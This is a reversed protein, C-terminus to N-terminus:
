PAQPGCEIRLVAGPPEVAALSFLEDAAAAEPGPEPRAYSAVQPEAARPPLAREAGHFRSAKGAGRAACSDRLRSGADFFAAPLAVLGSAVDTEPSSLVVTGDIGLRSSAEVVSGPSRILNEAFISLNGGSGLNAEATVVGDDLVALPTNIRIDGATTDSGGFVRTTIRSEQIQAHTGVDLDISGGQAFFLGEASIQSDDMSLEDAVLRITGANGPKYSTVSIEAGEGLSIRQSLLVVDGSDARRLSGLADRDGVTSYIGSANGVADSGSARFREIAKVTVSGANGAGFASSGIQAGELLSISSAEVTVRGADGVSEPHDGRASLTSTTILGNSVDVESAVVSVTGSDGSSGELAISRIAPITQDGTMTLRRSAVRISGADQSNRTTSNIVGYGWISVSDDVAIDVNGAAGQSGYVSESTIGNLADENLAQSSGYISLDNAGIFISGAGGLDASLSKIASGPLISVDGSNVYIDGGSGSALAVSRLFSGEQIVVSVAEIRVADGPLSGFNEAEVSSTVMNLTRAYIRVETENEAKGAIVRSRFLNIDRGLAPSYNEAGGVVSNGASSALTIHGDVSTLSSGVIDIQGGIMSLSGPNVDGVALRTGVLAISGASAGLFGFAEPPAVSLVSKGPETASFVDGGPFRLEDATSLHFSAPVDLSANPGFTVGAPNIFYIDAGPVMSRFAGDITSRVGGTVRSLVNDIGAPGTFTAAEGTGIDFREFSHFLNRGAIRGYAAPIEAAPGKLSVRPGLTGDTRIDTKVQAQAPGLCFSFFLALASCAGFFLKGGVVGGDPTGGRLSQEGDQRPM